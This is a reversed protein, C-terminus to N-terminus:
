ILLVYVRQHTTLTEIRIQRKPNDAAKCLINQM